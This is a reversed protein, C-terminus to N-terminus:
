MIFSFNTSQLGQLKTPVKSTNCYPLTANPPPPPPKSQLTLDHSNFKPSSHRWPQWHIRSTNPRWSNRTRANSKTTILTLYNTPTIGLLTCMIEFNGCLLKELDVDESKTNTNLLSNTPKLFAAVRPLINMLGIDDLLYGSDFVNYERPPNIQREVDCNDDM